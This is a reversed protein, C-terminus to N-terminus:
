RRVVDVPIAAAIRTQVIAGSRLTAELLLSQRGYVVMGSAGITLVGADKDAGVTVARATVGAPPKALKVTVAGKVGDKRIVLFPIELPESRVFRLPRTIATKPRVTFPAPEVVSFLLEDVPVQYRYFFAQMVGEGAQAERRVRSGDVTSVGTIRPTFPRMAADDPATITVIASTGPAEIDPAVYKFGRPLGSVTLDIDGAFGDLRLAEVTLMASEGRGVRPNDPSVSLRFDPRAPVVRLRYAFEHGGKGQTDEIRLVCKAASRFRRVIRADAHHTELVGEPDEWDDNAALVKGSGADLLSLRADIPSELRRGVVEMVLTEGKGAQFAFHDVEGPRAIVGNVVCPRAIATAQAPTNNPETEFVEPFDTMEFPLTRTLSLGDPLGIRGREPANSPVTFRMRGVPLNVGRLQVSVAQGRRGGLPFVSTLYPVEGIVLRYVFDERGRYIIDNIRVVYDGDRSPRFFLVPDPRLQFDDVSALQRGRADYLTLCLDSWGPVADAIYPVIERSRAALVITQGRKASFRFADRDGPMVQGNVVVPLSALAEAEGLESNTETEVHEPLDGVSFRFRNSAGGPSLVRLDREGSEATPAIVIEFVMSLNDPAGVRKGAVGSGSLHVGEVHLLNRGAIRVRVSTGKRGGCPFVSAIYPEVDPSVAGKKDRKKAGAADLGGVAFATVLVAILFQAGHKM